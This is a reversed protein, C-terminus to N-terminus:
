GTAPRGRGDHLLGKARSRRAPAPRERRPQHACAPRTGRPGNRWPRPRRSRTWSAPGSISRTPAHASAKGKSLCSPSCRHWRWPREPRNRHHQRRSGQGTVAPLTRGSSPRLLSVLVKALFAIAPLPSVTRAAIWAIPLSLLIGVAAGALAIQFTEVIRAGIRSLFGPELNPPWMRDMLRLFSPLGDALQRPQPGVDIIAALVLAATGVMLAFRLPPIRGLRPPLPAEREAM